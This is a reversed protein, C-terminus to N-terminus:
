PGPAHPPHMNQPATHWDRPLDTPTNPSEAACHMRPPTKCACPPFYGQSGRHWPPCRVWPIHGMRHCTRLWPSPGWPPFLGTGQLWGHAPSHPPAFPECMRRCPPQPLTPPQQMFPTSSPSGWHEPQCVLSPGPAYTPRTGLSPSLCCQWGQSLHLPRGGLGGRTRATSAPVEMRCIQPATAWKSM